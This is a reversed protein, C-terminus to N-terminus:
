RTASSSRSRAATASSRPRVGPRLLAVDRAAAGRPRAARRARHVRRRRLLAGHRDQADRALRRGRASAGCAHCFGAGHANVTGCAACVPAPAAPRTPPISPPAPLTPRAPRSPRALDLSPDQLLIAKELQQLAQSPDLGLEDRLSARADQMVALADAQRGARYLALILLGRLSERLPHDRVLAELEAVAEAHRGVALDAELRQELAVLRLEELRGIENRAFAEYEFDALPPGRWLALAERLLEDRERPMVRSWCSGARSSCLERVAALDLAGPEVRLVYGLRVRRSWARASCRASSRSTCRCRRSRPRRRGSAGCRTSSGSRRCRRARTCSCCPSCRGSSRLAWSSSVATRGSRLRAWSGSSWGGFTVGTVLLSWDGRHRATQGAGVSPM